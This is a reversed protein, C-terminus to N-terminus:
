KSVFQRLIFDEKITVYGHVVKLSFNTEALSKFRKLQIYHDYNRSVSEQLTEGQSSLLLLKIQSPLYINGCTPHLQVCISYRDDIKPSIGVLLIFKYNGLNMELDILKAGKIAVENLAMDRRFQVTLSRGQQNLLTDLTYWGNTFTNELWQCLNTELRLSQYQQIQSNSQSNSLCQQYLRQRWKNSSLLVAWEEFPTNFRLSSSNVRINKSLLQEIYTTSLEPLPNFVAEQWPIFNRAVWMLNIDTILEERSLRYVKDNSDFFAKERIQQHSACGWIRLWGEDLNIQAALYYRATWSSIDVWEQPIYFHSISSKDSPILVFTTGDITLPTGNVFEWVSPLNELQPSIKYSNHFDSDEKLYSLFTNLFLYNLFANWRATDCSYCDQVSLLWAEEKQQESLELWLHEPYIETLEKPSLIM